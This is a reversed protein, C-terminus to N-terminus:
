LVPRRGRGSSSSSSGFNPVGRLSPFSAIKRLSASATDKKVSTPPVNKTSMTKQAVPLSETKEKSSPAAAQPPSIRETAKRADYRQFDSSRTNRQYVSKVAHSSFAQQKSKGMRHRVRLMEKWYKEPNQNFLIIDDHFAGDVRTADDRTHAKPEKNIEFVNKFDDAEESLREKTITQTASADKWAKHYLPLLPLHRLVLKQVVERITDDKSTIKKILTSLGESKLGKTIDKCMGSSIHVPSQAKTQVGTAGETKHNGTCSEGYSLKGCCPDVSYKDYNVQTTRPVFCLNSVSEKEKTCTIGLRDFHRHSREIESRVSDFEFPSADHPPHSVKASGNISQLLASFEGRRDKLIGQQSSSINELLQTVLRQMEQVSPVWKGVTYDNYLCIMSRLKSFKVNRASGVKLFEETTCSLPHTFRLFEWFLKENKLNHRMRYRLDMTAGEGFYTAFNDIVETMTLTSTSSAGSDTKGSSLVELLSRKKLTTGGRAGANERRESVSRSTSSGNWKLLSAVHYFKVTTADGIEAKSPLHPFLSHKTRKLHQGHEICYYVDPAQNVIHTADDLPVQCEMMLFKLSESTIWKNSARFDKFMVEKSGRVASVFSKPIDINVYKTLMSVFDDIYVQRCWKELASDDMRVGKGPDDTIVPSSENSQVKGFLKTQVYKYQIYGEQGILDSDGEVEHTRERNNALLALEFDREVWNDAETAALAADGEPLQLPAINEGLSKNFAAIEDKLFNSLMRLLSISPQRKCKTWEELAIMTEKMRVGTSWIVQAESLNDRKIKQQFMKLLIGSSNMRDEAQSEFGLTNTNAENSDPSFGTPGTGFGKELSDTIYKFREGIGAAGIAPIRGGFPLANHNIVMQEIPRKNLELFNHYKWYPVINWWSEKLAFQSLESSRKYYNGPRNGSIDRIAQEIAKIEQQPIDDVKSWGSNLEKRDVSPLGSTYASEWKGGFNPAKEYVDPVIEFYKPNAHFQKSTLRDHYEKTVFDRIENHQTYGFIKRRPTMRDSILPAVPQKNWPAEIADLLDQEAWNNRFPVKWSQPESLSNKGSELLRISKDIVFDGLPYAVGQEPIHQIWINQHRAGVIRASFEDIKTRHKEIAPHPSDRVPSLNWNNDKLFKMVSKVTLGLDLIQNTSTTAVLTTKKVDVGAIIMTAPSEKMTLVSGYLYGFQECLEKTVNLIRGELFAVNTPDEFCFREFHITDGHRINHVTKSFVRDNVCKNLQIDDTEFWRYCSETPFCFPTHLSKRETENEIEISQQSEESPLKQMRHECFHLRRLMKYPDSENTDIYASDPLRRSDQFSKELSARVSRWNTIQKGKDTTGDTFEYEVLENMKLDWGTPPVRVVGEERQERRFRDVEMDIRIKKVSQQPVSFPLNNYPNVVADSRPNNVDHTLLIPHATSDLLEEYARRLFDSENLMGLQFELSGRLKSMFTNARGRQYTVRYVRMLADVQRQTHYKSGFIPHETSKIFLAEARNAVAEYWEKGWSQHPNWLGQYKRYSSFRHGQGCFRTENYPQSCRPCYLLNVKNAEMEMFIAFLDELGRPRSRQMAQLLSRDYSLENLHKEFEVLYRAPEAVDRYHEGTQLTAHTKKEVSPTVWSGVADYHRHILRDLQDWWHSLHDIKGTESFRDKTYFKHSDYLKASWFQEDAINLASSPMLGRYVLSNNREWETLEAGERRYQSTWDSQSHPLGLLTNMEQFPLSSHMLRSSSADKTPDFSIMNGKLITRGQITQYPSESHRLHDSRWRPASTEPFSHRLHQGSPMVTTVKLIKTCQM